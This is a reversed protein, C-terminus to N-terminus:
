ALEEAIGTLQNRICTLFTALEPDLALAMVAEEAAFCDDVAKWDLDSPSVMDLAARAPQLARAAEIADLLATLRDREGLATARRTLNIMPASM